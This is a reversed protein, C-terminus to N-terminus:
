FLIPASQVFSKMPQRTKRFFVCPFQQVPVVSLPACAGTTQMYVHSLCDLTSDCTFTCKHWCVAPFSSLRRRDFGRSRGQIRFLLCPTANDPSTVVRTCFHPSHAATHASRKSQPPPPPIPPVQMYDYKPNVLYMFFM